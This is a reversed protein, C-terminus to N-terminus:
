NIRGDIEEVELLQSGNKAMYPAQTHLIKTVERLFKYRKM